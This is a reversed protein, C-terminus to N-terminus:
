LHMDCLLNHFLQVKLCTLQKPGVPLQVTQVELILRKQKLNPHNTGNDNACRTGPMSWQRM